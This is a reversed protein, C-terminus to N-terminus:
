ANAITTVTGGSGRWKLAGSEAYLVGGGAPNGTPATTRNAIAVVGVSSAGFSTGFIGFNGAATLRLAPGGVISFLIDRLTGTGGKQSLFSVNNNNWGCTFLEFNTQDATWDTNYMQFSAPNVLSNGNPSIRLITGTSSTGHRIIFDSSPSLGVDVGQIRINNSFTNVASFTQALGLLAATGTDPITLVKNAAAFALTGANTAITLTRTSNNVGTGGASAPLVGTRWDTNSLDIAGFAAGGAGDYILVEGNSSGAGTFDLFSFPMDGVTVNAGLSALFLVGPGEEALDAGTGGLGTGLQGEFLDPFGFNLPELQRSPLLGTARALDPRYRALRDATDAAVLGLVDGWLLQIQASM